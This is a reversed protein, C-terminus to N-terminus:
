SDGVQKWRKNGLAKQSAEIVLIPGLSTGIFGFQNCIFLIHPEKKFKSIFPFMLIFPALINQVM